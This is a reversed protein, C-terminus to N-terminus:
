RRLSRVAVIQAGRWQTGPDRRSGGWRRSSRPIRGSRSSPCLGIGRPSRALSTTTVSRGISPWIWPKTVIPRNIGLGRRQEVLGGRPQARAAYLSASCKRIQGRESSRNGDLVSLTNEVAAIAMRDLSEVTVGPL